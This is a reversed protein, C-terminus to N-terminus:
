AGFVRDLKRMTLVSLSREKLINWIDVHVQERSASADVRVVRSDQEAAEAFGRRVAQHFSLSQAEMRDQTSRKRARELGEEPDIDLWFTLDPEIGLCVSQNLRHILDLSIGRGYCQYAVTSLTHRDSIVISKRSLAPAVIEEMHQARDAIYLLLEARSVIPHKQHMLLERIQAGLLTGGPERTLVVSCDHLELRSQLLRSQISKGSGEGGEFVLFISDQYDRYIHAPHNM